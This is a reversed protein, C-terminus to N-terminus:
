EVRYMSFTLTLTTDHLAGGRATYIRIENPCASTHYLSTLIMTLDEFGNIQSQVTGSM